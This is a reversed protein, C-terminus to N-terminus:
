PSPEHPATTTPRTDSGRSTTTSAPDPAETTDTTVSVDTRVPDDGGSNCGLAGALAAVAVGVIARRCL